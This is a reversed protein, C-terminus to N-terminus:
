QHEYIRVAGIATSDGVRGDDLVTVQKDGKACLLMGRRVTHATGEVHSVGGERHFLELEYHVVERDASKGKIGRLVTSDFVGCQLEERPLFM